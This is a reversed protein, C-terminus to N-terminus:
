AVQTKVPVKKKKPKIKLKENRLYSGLNEGYNERFDAMAEKGGGKADQFAQNREELKSVHWEGAEGGGFREVNQARMRERATLRERTSTGNTQNAPDNFANNGGALDVYNTESNDVKNDLNNARNQDYKKPVVEETTEEVVETGGGTTEDVINENNDVKNNNNNKNRNSVPVDFDAYSSAGRLEESEKNLKAELQDVKLLHIPTGEWDKESAGIRLKNRRLRDLRAENKDLQKLYKLDEYPTLTGYYKQKWQNKGIKENFPKGASEGTKWVTQKKGNPLLKVGTNDRLWKNYNTLANNLGGGIEANKIVKELRKLEKKQNPRGQKGGAARYETFSSSM